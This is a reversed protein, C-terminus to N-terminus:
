RRDDAAICQKWFGRFHKQQGLEGISEIEKPTLKFSPLKALYSQLRQESSSTTITVIGQDICWRLAIDGETVGYKKALEASLGDVPGPRARVIATLPAYAAVAINNKRLFDLLSGHQLYPHYEIQNIAPPIKATKLITEVHEQLFNSVGISKAKGSEKIAELSAWTRQLDEPTEAYFPVHILYLDVYDLELKKLSTEFATQVDQKKTSAVKTVVYLKERPVGAKKIAVGLEEENGYVLCEYASSRIEFFQCFLGEAGDLHYFGSQIATVTYNVVKEDYDSV